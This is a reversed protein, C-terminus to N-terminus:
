APAPAPSTWRRRLGGPPAPPTTASATHPQPPPAPAKQTPRRGETRYQPAGGSGGGGPAEARLPAARVPGDVEGASSVGLVTGWQSRGGRRQECRSRGVVPFPEGQPGVDSAGRAVVVPVRRWGGWLPRVWGRRSGGGRLPRQGGRRGGESAEPPGGRGPDSAGPPPPHTPPPRPLRRPWEPTRGVGVGGWGVAGRCLGAGCLGGCGPVGVGAGRCGRVRGRCRARGPEGGVWGVRGWLHSRRRERWPPKLVQNGALLMATNAARRGRVRFRVRVPRGRRAAACERVQLLAM